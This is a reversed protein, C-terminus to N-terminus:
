VWLHEALAIPFNKTRRVIFTSHGERHLYAAKIRGTDGLSSRTPKRVRCAAHCLLAFVAFAVYIALRAAKSLASFCCAIAGGQRVQSAMGYPRGHGFFVLQRYLM